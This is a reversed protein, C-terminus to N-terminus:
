RIAGVAVEPPEAMGQPLARRPTLWAAAGCALCVWYILTLLNDFGTPSEAYTSSGFAALYSFTFVLSQGASLVGLAWRRRALAGVALALTLTPMLPLSAAQVYLGPHDPWFLVHLVVVVLLILFAAGTWLVPLFSRRTALARIALVVLLLFLLPVSFPIAVPFYMLIAGLVLGVFAATFVAAVVSLGLAAGAFGLLSPLGVMPAGLQDVHGVVAWNTGRPGVRYIRGTRPSAWLDGIM